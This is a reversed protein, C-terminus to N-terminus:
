RSIQRTTSEWSRQPSMWSRMQSRCAVGGNLRAGVAKEEEGLGGGGEPNGRVARRVALERGPKLALDVLAVGDVHQPAVDSVTGVM